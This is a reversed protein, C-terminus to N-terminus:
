PMVEWEGLFESEHQLRLAHPMEEMTGVEVFITYQGPCGTRPRAEVWHYPNLNAWCVPRVKTGAKCATLAELITM